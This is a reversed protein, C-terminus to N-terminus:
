AAKKSVTRLKFRQVKGTATKPLEDLFMVDWPCKFKPLRGAMYGLLSKRLGDRDQDAYRKDLAVYAFPKVLGEIERGVVACEGVAQHEMLVNEIEVPSVWIGGVKLM